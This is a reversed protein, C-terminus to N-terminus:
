KAPDRSGIRFWNRSLDVAYFVIIGVLCSSVIPLLLNDVVPTDLLHGIAVSYWPLRDGTFPIMLLSYGSPTILAPSVLFWQIFALSCFAIFLAGRSRHLCVDIAMLPMAWVLYQPYPSSVVYFVLFTSLLTGFPDNTKRAFLGLLGYFLILVFVFGYTNTVYSGLFMPIPQTVPSYQTLYRTGFPLIWSLYCFLGVLSLGFIALRHRRSVGASCAFILLPPMLLIPYFKTCIGLALFIGSWIPRRSILLSIAVVVFFTALVDPVGLLETGLFSYPNAFWILSALRGQSPSGMRRVTYYLVGGIALDLGFIPMRFLLSILQMNLGMAPPTAAYWSELQNLTSNLPSYLPPYLVIWPGILPHNSAVLTVIDRLDYSAPAVASLALKLASIIIVFCFFARRSRVVASIRAALQKIEFSRIESGSM